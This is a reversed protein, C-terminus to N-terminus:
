ISKAPLITYDAIWRWLLRTCLSLSDLETSYSYQFGEVGQGRSDM